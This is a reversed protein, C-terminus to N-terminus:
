PTFRIVGEIPVASESAATVIRFYYYYCGAAFNATDDNTIVVRAVTVSQAEPTSTLLPEAGPLACVEFAMSALTSVDVDVFTIDHKFTVGVPCTLYTDSAANSM